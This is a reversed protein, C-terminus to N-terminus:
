VMVAVVAKLPKRSIKKEVPPTQNDKFLGELHCRLADAAMRRAENLTTGFTVIEPISQPEFYVTYEHRVRAQAATGNRRTKGEMSTEKSRSM